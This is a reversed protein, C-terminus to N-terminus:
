RSGRIEEVRKRVGPVVESVFLALQASPATVPWFVFTDFGLGVAWEALTGVWYAVDGTIGPGGASHGITGIVNYIRRVAAPDRGATRAAEDIIKQRAPVEAPPVYINLPSVWGDSHRGTVALMRPRRSGVWVPVPAPPVPGAAYGEITHQGSSLRVGGGELAQRLVLLSEETYSVMESGTRRAGGMGAIGAASAGGGVGLTVRGGTLVSLSAAAKALMAPPRLQLDVVDTLFSIRETGAALHSILTWTDLHGPQYPHDQVALYELGGDAAAGAMRRTEDLRDASPDLSAGFSIPHGYDTM